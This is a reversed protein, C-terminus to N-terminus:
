SDAEEIRERINLEKLDELAQRVEENPEHEQRALEDLDEHLLTMGSTDNSLHGPEKGEEYSDPQVDSMGDREAFAESVRREHERQAEEARLNDFHTNDTM